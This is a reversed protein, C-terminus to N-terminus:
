NTSAIMSGPRSAAANATVLSTLDIDAVIMDASSGCDTIGDSTHAGAWHLRFGSVPRPLWAEVILSGGTRGMVALDLVCWTGGPRGVVIRVGPDGIPRAPSFVVIDGVKPPVRMLEPLAAAAIGAALVVGGAFLGIPLGKPFDPITPRM